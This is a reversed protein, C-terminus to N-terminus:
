KAVEEKTVPPQPAVYGALLLLAGMGLLGLAVGLPSLLANGVVLLLKVTALACGGAAVQWGARDGKRSFFVLLSVGLVGWIMPLPMETFARGGVGRLSAAPLAYSWLLLLLSGIFVGATWRVTPSKTASSSSWAGVGVLTSILLAMAGVASSWASAAYPIFSLFLAGLAVHEAGRQCTKEITAAGFTNLPELAYRSLLAWSALGLVLANFFVLPAAGLKYALVAPLLAGVLSLMVQANANKESLPRSGLYRMGALGM